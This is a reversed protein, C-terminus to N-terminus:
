RGDTLSDFEKSRQLGSAFKKQEAKHDGGTAQAQPSKNLIDPVRVEHLHNESSKTSPVGSASGQQRGPTTKWKIEV